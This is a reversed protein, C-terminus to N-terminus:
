RSRSVPLLEISRNLFTVTNKLCGIEAQIFKLLDKFAKTGMLIVEKKPAALYSYGSNRGNERAFPRVPYNYEENAQNLEFLVHGATVGYLDEGIRLYFDFTGQVQPTKEGAIPLGLATTVSHIVNKLPPDDDVPTLLPPGTLLRAESERFAVEVDDIDHQKLLGLIDLSSKLAVDGTTTDEQVGVWITVDSTVATQLGEADSEDWSFHVLDISTFM